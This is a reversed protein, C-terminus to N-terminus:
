NLSFLQDSTRSQALTNVQHLHRPSFELVLQALAVASSYHLHHLARADIWESDGGQPHGNNAQAMGAEKSPSLDLHCRCVIKDAQALSILACGARRGLKALSCIM